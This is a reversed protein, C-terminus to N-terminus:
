LFCTLIISTCAAIQLDGNILDNLYVPRWEEYINNLM